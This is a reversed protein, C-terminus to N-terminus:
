LRVESIQILPQIATYNPIDAVIQAANPAWAEQFEGVTDFYLHGMAIYAPASGPAPGSLGHEVTAGKCAKGLLSRVMPLHKSVYYDIDFSAGSSHPYFVSVKIM